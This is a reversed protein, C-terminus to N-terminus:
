SQNGSRGPSVADKGPNLDSQGEAVAQKLLDWATRVRNLYRIEEECVLWFTRKLEAEEPLVRVLNKDHRALFMPLVALGVGAAVARYHSSVRDSATESLGPAREKRETRILDSGAWPLACGVPNSWNVRFSRFTKEINSSQSEFSSMAVRNFTLRAVTLNWTRLM